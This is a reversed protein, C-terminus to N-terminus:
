THSDNTISLDPADNQTLGAADGFLHDLNGPM